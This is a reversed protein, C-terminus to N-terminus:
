EAEEDGDLDAMVQLDGTEGQLAIMLQGTSECLEPWNVEYSEDRHDQDNIQYLHLAALKRHTSTIGHPGIRQDPL